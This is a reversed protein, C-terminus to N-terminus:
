KNRIKIVTELKESFKVIAKLAQQQRGYGIAKEYPTILLDNHGKFLIQFSSGSIGNKSYSFKVGPHFHLYSIAPEGKNDSRLYDTITITDKSFEFCRRHIVDMFAYGDHEAIIRQPQDKLIQAHGRRGVRFASWVENQERGEVM